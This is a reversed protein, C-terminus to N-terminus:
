AGGDSSGPSRLGVSSGDVTGTLASKYRISTYEIGFWRWGAGVGGGFADDFSIDPVYGDGNFKVDTHWVPGADVRFNHPLL